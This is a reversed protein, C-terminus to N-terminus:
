PDKQCSDPVSVSDDGFDFYWGDWLWSVKAVLNGGPAGNKKALDWAQKLSCRWRPRPKEKCNEMSSTPYVEIAEQSVEVYVLCAIDQEVNAPLNPDGRSEKPSRFRYNARYERNLTLDVHGDPFVGDADFDILVADPMKERALKEARKSFGLADFDKPNFDVPYTSSKGKTEIMTVGSRKKETQPQKALEHVVIKVSTMLGEETCKGEYTAGRETAAKKLDYLTTTVVCKKGIKMIQTALTKQAALERGLEIQCNHDYCLKYSAKKQKRLRDHLDRPPVIQFAGSAAMRAPLFVNLIELTKRRIKVQKAEIPFVAVIPKEDGALAPLALLCGLLICVARPNM